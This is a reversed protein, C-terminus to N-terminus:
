CGLPVYSRVMNTIYSRFEFQLKLAVTTEKIFPAHFGTATSIEDKFIRFHLIELHLLM